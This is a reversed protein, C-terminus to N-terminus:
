AGKKHPKLTWEFNISELMSQHEGTLKSRRYNKRLESVWGGLENAWQKLEEDSASTQSM